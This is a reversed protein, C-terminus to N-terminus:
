TGHHHHGGYGGAATDLDKLTDITKAGALVVHSEAPIIVDVAQSPSGVYGHVPRDGSGRVRLSNSLVLFTSNESSSPLTILDKEIQSSAPSPPVRVGWIVQTDDESNSRVGGHAFPVQTSAFLVCSASVLIWWSLLKRTSM